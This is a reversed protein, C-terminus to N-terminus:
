SEVDSHHNEINDNELEGEDNDEQEASEDYNKIETSIFTKTEVNNINAVTETTLNIEDVTARNILKFIYNQIRNGAKLIKKSSLGEGDTELQGKDNKSLTLIQSIGHRDKLLCVQLLRGSVFHRLRM